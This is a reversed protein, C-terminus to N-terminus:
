QGISLAFLHGAKQSKIGMCSLRMMLRKHRSSRGVSLRRYEWGVGLSQGLDAQTKEINLNAKTKDLSIIKAVTNVTSNFIPLSLQGVSNGGAQLQSTRQLYENSSLNYFSSAGGVGGSIYISDMNLMPLKKLRQLSARMDVAHGMAIAGKMRPNPSNTSILLTRM